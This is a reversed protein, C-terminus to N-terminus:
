STKQGQARNFAIEMPSLPARGAPAPSHVSAPPQASTSPGKVEVAMVRGGNEPQGGTVSGKKTLSVFFSTALDRVTGLGNSMAETSFLTQGERPAPPKLGSNWRM